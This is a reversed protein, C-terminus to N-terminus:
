AASLPTCSVSISLQTRNGKRSLISGQLMTQLCDAMEM